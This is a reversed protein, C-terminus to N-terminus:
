KLHVLSISEEFILAEKKDLFKLKHAYKIHKERTGTYEMLLLSLCTAIKQLGIWVIFLFPAVNQIQWYLPAIM